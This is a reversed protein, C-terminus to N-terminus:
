EKLSYAIRYGPYIPSPITFIYGRYGEGHIPRLDSRQDAEIQEPPKSLCKWRQDQEGLFKQCDVTTHGVKDVIGFQLQNVGKPYRTLSITQDLEGEPYHALENPWSIQYYITLSEGSPLPHPFHIKMKQEIAPQYDSLNEIALRQGEPGGLFAAPDMDGFGIKTDGSEKHDIASTPSTGTNEITLWRYSHWDDNPTDLVDIRKLKHYIHSEDVLEPDNNELSYSTALRGRRMRLAIEDVTPSDATDNQAAAIRDSVVEAVQNLLVVHRQGKETLTLRGDDSVVTDREAFRNIIQRLKQNSTTKETRRLRNTVDNIVESAEVSEVEGRSSAIASISGLSYLLIFPQVSQSDHLPSLHAGIQNKADESGWDVTELETGVQRPTNVLDLVDKGTDTLRYTQNSKEVLAMDSNELKLSQFYDSVTSQDRNIVAAIETQTTATETDLLVLSALTPPTIRRLVEATTVLIPTPWDQHAPRSRTLSM